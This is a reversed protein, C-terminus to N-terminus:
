NEESAAQHQQHAGASEGVVHEHLVYSREAVIRHVFGNLHLEVDAPIVRPM